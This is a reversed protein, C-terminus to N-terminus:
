NTANLQIVNFFSIKNSMAGILGSPKSDRTKAGQPSELGQNALLDLYDKYLTRVKPDDQFILDIANLAKLREDASIAYRNAVLAYLIAYKYRWRENRNQVWIFVLVAIVPSLALAAIEIWPRIAEMTGHNAAFPNLSM